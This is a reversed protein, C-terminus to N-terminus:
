PVASAAADRVLGCTGLWLRKRGTHAEFGKCFVAYGM